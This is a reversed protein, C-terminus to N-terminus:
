PAANRCSSIPSPGSKKDEYMRADAEKLVDTLAGGKGTTSSGLAISLPTGGHAANHDDLVRRIRHYLLQASAASTAPLLVAFEDGGIRAIIDDARFAANLVQAARKLLADGAAHGDRDNIRKLGNLDAMVISIPFQRGRGLRAMEEDFFGRNYLGTLEDHISMEKLQGEIQKREAIEHQLEATREVVRAELNERAQDLESERRKAQTLDAATLCFVPLPELPLFVLALRVPTSIGTGATLGCEIERRAGTKSEVAADLAARDSPSVFARINKGIVQEMPIPVM